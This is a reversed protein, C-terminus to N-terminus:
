SCAAPQELRVMFWTQTREEGFRILVPTEDNTLNYIGTEMVTQSKDGISWAARQTKRDVSGQVPLSTGSLENYFTGTIIGEKSVVLQLLMVAEGQQEDSLAFGGLPMWEIETDDTPPVPNALQFAQDAYEDVTAVQQDDIYVSDGEDVVNEGYDYYVPETWVGGVWGTLGRWTAWAWWYGPNHYRHYNWHAHAARPHDQWWRDSFWDEHRGRLEDRIDNAHDRRNEM